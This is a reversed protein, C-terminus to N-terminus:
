ITNKEIEYLNNRITIDIVRETLRRIGWFLYEYLDVRVQLEVQEYFLFDLKNYIEKPPNFKHGIKM